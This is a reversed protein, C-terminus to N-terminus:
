AGFLALSTRTVSRRNANYLELLDVVSGDHRMAVGRQPAVFTGGDHSGAARWFAGPSDPHELEDISPAVSADGDFAVVEWLFSEYAGRYADGWLTRRAQEFTPAEWEMGFGWGIEAPWATLGWRSFLSRGLADAVLRFAISQRDTAPTTPPSPLGVSAEIPRIAATVHAGSILDYAGVADPSDRPSPTIPIEFGDIRLMFYGPPGAGPVRWFFQVDDAEPHRRM